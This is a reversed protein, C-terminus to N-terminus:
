AEIKQGNITYSFKMKMVIGKQGVMSNVIIM